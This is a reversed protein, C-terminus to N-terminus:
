FTALTINYWPVSTHQRIAEGEEKIQKLGDQEKTYFKGCKANEATACVDTEFHYQANLRYFLEQPTECECTASSAFADRHM